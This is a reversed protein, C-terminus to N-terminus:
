KDITYRVGFNLNFNLPKEKYITQLSSGDDFHYSVGPEAYIGINDLVNFQVGAAANVSIQLPKSDIDFTESKKTANNIVYEEAVYGSVCKEALVGALGYLNLRKYAFINYKVNFPIGVYNLKQEGTFYNEQSGDKMDSALRTYTLGSEISLRENLAYAVKVGIHVPLRHKYETKVEKGQNFINIGLMPNNEWDSDDPGTAIVPDGISTITKSAKLTGM